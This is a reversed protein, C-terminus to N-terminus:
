NIYINKKIGFSILNDINHEIIPKDGLMLMPKPVKDTLPSLRKGRGGAMIMCEVPIMSKYIDLDILRSLTKNKNLLPLIKIDKKRLENLNLYKDSEYRFIFNYNCIQDVKKNLDRNKVISRRIDGDTITGILVGEKNVVFLILRNIEKLNNLQNLADLITKNNEILIDKIDYSM